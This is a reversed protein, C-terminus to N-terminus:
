ELSTPEDFLLLKPDMALARAIGVRQKQGGSLEAPYSDAQDLLGVQELHVSGM